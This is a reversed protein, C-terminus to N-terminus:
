SRRLNVLEELSALLKVTVSLIEGEPNLVFLWGVNVIFLPTQVSGRISFERDGNELTKMSGKVPSLKMGQAEAELYAAIAESGVVPEEFPPNLQGAPAFLASTGQFDGANLREFYRGIQPQSVGEIELEPTSIM